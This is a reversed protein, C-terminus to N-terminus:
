DFSRRHGAGSHSIPSWTKRDVLFKGSVENYRLIAGSHSPCSVIM